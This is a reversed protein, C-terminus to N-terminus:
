KYLKLKGIIKAIENKKYVGIAVCTTTNPPLETKGLDKVVFHVIKNEKCDNIVKNLEDLDKVELVIKYQGALYWRNIDQFCNIRTLGICGHAVQVAVKGASMEIDKRVIVVMRSPEGDDFM